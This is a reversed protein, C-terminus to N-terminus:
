FGKLTVLYALLDALEEENLTDAYSPMPSQSIVTLEQLASKELSVLREQNDLIQVTYTDENLRRGSVVEGNTKVARMSRNSPLMSGTPDLLTARMSGAGRIAGISTLDPGLRSGNGAVRHCSTCAGKGEFLVEGRNANGLTVVGGDYDRMTRVYAVIAVLDSDAYDGPPMATGPIGRTLIRRFNQDTSAHRFQGAKLNVNGVGDGESGHCNSCFEDYLQAGREIDARDYEDGHEQFAAVSTDVGHIYTIFVTASCVLSFFLKNRM